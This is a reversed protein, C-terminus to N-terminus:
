LSASLMAAHTFANSASPMTSSMTTTLLLAWGSVDGAIASVIPGPPTRASGPSRRRRDAAPQDLRAVGVEHADALRVAREVGVVDDLQQREGGVDVHHEPRAGHLREDEAAGVHAPEQPPPVPGDGLEGLHEEVGDVQGVDAAREPHQGAGAISSISGCKSDVPEDNPNSIISITASRRSGITCTGTFYWGRTPSLETVPSRPLATM